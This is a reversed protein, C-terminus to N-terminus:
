ADIKLMPDLVVPRQQSYLCSARCRTCRSAANCGACCTEALSYKCEIRLFACTLVETWMQALLKWSCTYLCCCAGNKGCTSLRTPQCFSTFMKKQQQQQEAPRTHSKVCFVLSDTMMPELQQVMSDCGEAPACRRQATHTYTMLTLM